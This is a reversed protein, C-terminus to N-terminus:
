QDLGIAIDIVKENFDGLFTAAGTLLNIQYLSYTGDMLLTAFARNRMTVGDVLDGAIEPLWKFWQFYLAYKKHKRLCLDLLILSM